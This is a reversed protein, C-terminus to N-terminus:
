AVISAQVANPFRPELAQFLVGGLIPDNVVEVSTLRVFSYGSAALNEVPFEIEIIQASGATTTFGAAAAATIAGPAAAGVTVRYTFPIASTNSPVVDDCAEVTLTVTGTTGVGWHVIFLGRNHNKMSFVDSHVTGSFADAVAAIGVELHSRQTVLGTSM